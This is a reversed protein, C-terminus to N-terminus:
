HHSAWESLLDIAKVIQGATGRYDGSGQKIGDQTYWECFGDHRVVRNLLSFLGQYALQVEGAVVMPQVIRARFWAWDGGNQYVYASGLYERNKFFDVPYTPYLSVGLSGSGSEIKNKIMRTFAQKVEAPLLLGAEIAVAAGGKFYIASEEFGLPMPSGKELYLHPIFQTGNWLYTRVAGRLDRERGGWISADRTSVKELSQLGQLALSLMISSVSALPMMLTRGPTDELQM